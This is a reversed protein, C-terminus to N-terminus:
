PPRSGSLRHRGPVRGLRSGHVLLIVGVVLLLLGALIYM